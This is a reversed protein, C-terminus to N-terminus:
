RVGLRKMTKQLNPRSIGLKEAARTRNGECASLAKEIMTKKIRELARPLSEGEQIAAPLTQIGRLEEAVLAFAIEEGEDALAVMREVENRLQRVNGPWYYRELVAMVEQNFGPLKKGTRGTYDELFHAALLPIDERRERLPPLRVSLVSLRYYLEVRFRKAEVEQLLDRSTAAVVRVDVQRPATEGLRRIEGNELVRLLKAQVGPSTDAIEDLFLTGGDAVEFLGPKDQHASTFAGRAHGFLESELLSEPLAACNEAVFSRDQRPGEFHLARAVLEKGTGSEGIILVPAPSAIIKELLRKMRRMPPSDGLISAFQSRSEVEQRLQVNEQRLQSFRRANELIFAIQDALATYFPSFPYPFRCAQSPHDLYLAGIARGWAGLLLCLRSGASDQGIIRDHGEDVAPVVANVKYGGTAMARRCFAAAEAAAKEDMHRTGAVRFGDGGPDALLLLTSQSSTVELAMDLVEGLVEEWELTGYLFRTTRYLACCSWDPWSHAGTDDQLM